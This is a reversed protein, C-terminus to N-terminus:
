LRVKKIRLFSCLKRESRMDAICGAPILLKARATYSTATFSFVGHFEDVAFLTLTHTSRWEQERQKKGTNICGLNCSSLVQHPTTVFYLWTGCTNIHLVVPKIRQHQFGDIYLPNIQHTFLSQVNEASLQV